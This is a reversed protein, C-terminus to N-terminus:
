QRVRLVIDKQLHHALQKLTNNSLGTYDLYVTPNNTNAISHIVDLQELSISEGLIEEWPAAKKAFKKVLKAKAAAKLFQALPPLAIEEAQYKFVDEIFSTPMVPMTSPLLPASTFFLLGQSDPGRKLQYPDEMKIESPLLARIPDFTVYLRSQELNHKSIQLDRIDPNDSLNTPMDSFAKLHAEFLKREKSKFLNFM